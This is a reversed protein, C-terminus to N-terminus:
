FTIKQSVLELAILMTDNEKPKPFMNKKKWSLLNQFLTILIIIILRHLETSYNRWVTDYQYRRSPAYENSM